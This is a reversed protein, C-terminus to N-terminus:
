NGGAVPQPRPTMNQRLFEEIATYLELQNALRAAGHGEEATFKAVHPVNNKKLEAVLTRSQMVDATQDDRGHWVFVAAKIQSVFRMASIAAFREKQKEPDGLHRLLTDSRSTSSDNQYAQNMVEAWDFVGAITIACRYLDPEHAVGSIALYGGFSGGMVAIRDRDIFGTKLIAKVGDTVDDHMKRFEWLDSEPFMWQADTSGRYNPQFVAYGRSALFQVEPDWGWSDRVWPGGHPLVVLPAPKDKTAGSPLTFYGELKSGDRANFNVISTKQMRAPDIWPRTSKILGLSRKELDLLYYTIPKRDSYAAAFFRKEAKDSGLLTVSEGPFQQAVMKQISEYRPQLWVTQDAARTIDFGVIERTRPDRHLHEIEADYRSDKYLLEGLEGTLANLRHLARPSKGDTPALVLVEGPKDGVAEVDYAELDVPCSTWAGNVLAYLVHKGALNGIGFALEGQGNAMFSLPSARPLTPYARLVTASVGYTNAPNEEIRLGPVDYDRANVRLKADIQVVGRDTHREDYASRQVWVIPRMPDSRPIGIPRVVSFREVPYGQSLQGIKAVYLGETYVKDFSLAFLLQNDNLWDVQYIDRNDRGRLTEFKSTALDCVLLGTKDEDIEVLAVFHDGAENLKPNHFLPARFFDVLPIPQNAPVPTSRNLGDISKALLGNSIATAFILGLFTRMPSLLWRSKEM